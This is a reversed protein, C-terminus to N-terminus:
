FSSLFDHPCGFHFVIKTIGFRIPHAVRSFPLNIEHSGFSALFIKYLIRKLYPQTFILLYNDRQRQWSFAM